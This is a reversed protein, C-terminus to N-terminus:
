ILWAGSRPVPRAKQAYGAKGVSSIVKNVLVSSPELGAARISDLAKVADEWQGRKFFDTVQEALERLQKSAATPQQLHHPIPGGKKGVGNSAAPGAATAAAAKKAARKKTKSMPAAPPFARAALPFHKAAKPPQQVRTGQSSSM